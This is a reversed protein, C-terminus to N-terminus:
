IVDLIEDDYNVRKKRIIPKNLKTMYDLIYSEFQKKENNLDKITVGIEKVKDDLSLWNIIMEKVVSKKIVENTERKRNKSLEERKTNMKSEIDESPLKKELGSKSIYTRVSEVCKDSNFSILELCDFPEHYVIKFDVNIKQRWFNKSCSHLDETKYEDYTDNDNDSWATVGNPSKPVKVEPLAM